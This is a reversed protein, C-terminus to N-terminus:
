PQPPPGIGIVDNLYHINHPTLRVGMALTRRGPENLTEAM